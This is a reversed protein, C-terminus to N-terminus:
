RVAPSADADVGPYVARPPFPLLEKGNMVDGPLRKIYYGPGSVQVKGDEGSLEELADGRADCSAGCDSSPIIPMTNWKGLLPDPNRAPERHDGLSNGQERM